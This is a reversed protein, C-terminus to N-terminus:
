LYRGHPLWTNGPPTAHGADDYRAVGLSITAETPGTAWDGRAIPDHRHLRTSSTACRGLRSLLV